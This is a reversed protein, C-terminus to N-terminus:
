LFVNPKLPSSTLAIESRIKLGMTSNAIVTERDAVTTDLCPVEWFLSFAILGATILVSSHFHDVMKLLSKMVAPLKGSYKAGRM